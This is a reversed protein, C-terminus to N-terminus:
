FWAFLSPFPEQRLLAPRIINQFHFFSALLSSHFTKLIFYFICVCGSLLSFYPKVISLVVHLGDQEKREPCASFLRAFREQVGYVGQGMQPCIAEILHLCLRGDKISSTIKCDRPLLVSKDLVDPSFFQIGNKEVLM